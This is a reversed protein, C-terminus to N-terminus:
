LIMGLKAWGRLPDHDSYESQTPMGSIDYFYRTSLFIYDIKGEDHTERDEQDVDDFRRLFEALTEDSEAFTTLNSPTANFDGGIVVGYGEEVWANARGAVESIQESTKRLDKVNKDEKNKDKDNKGPAIHVSCARVRVDSMVSIMCVMSRTEVQSAGKSRPREELVYPSEPDREVTGRVLVANGFDRADSDGRDTSSCLAETRKSGESFELTAEFQGNMPWSGIGLTALLDDFQWRCVENLTVITPRFEVISRLVANTVEDANCEGNPDDKSLRRGESGCMNFQFFRLGNSPSSSEGIVFSADYFVSHEGAGGCQKVYGGLLRVAGTDLRHLSLEPSLSRCGGFSDEAVITLVDGVDATFDIPSFIDAHRNADAFIPEDNLYIFLDDDVAVNQTPSPGGSLRFSIAGQAIVARTSTTEEPQRPSPRPAAAGPAAIAMALLLAAASVSGRTRHASGSRARDSM